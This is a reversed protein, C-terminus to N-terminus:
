DGLNGNLLVLFCITALVVVGSITMTKKHIGM